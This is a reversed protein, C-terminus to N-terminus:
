LAVWPKWYYNSSTPLFRELWLLPTVHQYELNTEIAGEPVFLDFVWGNDINFCFYTPPLPVVTGTGDDLAGTEKFILTVAERRYVDGFIHNIDAIDNGLGDSEAIYQGTRFRTIAYNDALIQNIYEVYNGYGDGYGDDTLFLNNFTVVLTQNTPTPYIPIGDKRGGIFTLTLNESPDNNAALKTFKRLMREGHISNSYSRITDIDGLAPPVGSVVQFGPIWAAPQPNFAM